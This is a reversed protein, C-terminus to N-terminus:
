GTNALNPTQRKFVASWFVWPHRQYVWFIIKVTDIDRDVAYVLLFDSSGWVPRLNIWIHARPEVAINDDTM